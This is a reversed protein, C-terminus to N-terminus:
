SSRDSLMELRQGPLRAALRAALRSATASGYLFSLWGLGDHRIALVKGSLDARDYVMSMPDPSGGAPAQATLFRPVEPNLRALLGALHMILREVAEANLVVQGLPKQEDCITFAIQDPLDGAIGVQLMQHSVVAGGENLVM